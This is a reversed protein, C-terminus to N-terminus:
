IEHSRGVIPRSDVSWTKEAIAPLKFDEETVDEDAWELLEDRIMPPMQSAQRRTSKDVGPHTLHMPVEHRHTGKMISERKDALAKNNRNNRGMATVQHHPHRHHHEEGLKVTRLCSMCMATRGKSIAINTLAADRADAPSSAGGSMRKLESKDAKNQLQKEHRGVHYLLEGMQETLQLQQMHSGKTFLQNSSTADAWQKSIVEWPDGGTPAKGDGSAGLADVQGTASASGKSRQAAGEIVSRLQNAQVLGGSLQMVAECSKLLFKSHKESSNSLTMLQDEIQEMTLGGRHSPATAVRTGGGVSGSGMLAM